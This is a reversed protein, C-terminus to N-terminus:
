PAAPHRLGALCGRYADRRLRPKYGSALARAIEVPRTSRSGVNQAVRERSPISCAEQASAAVGPYEEPGPGDRGSQPSQTSRLESGTTDRSDGGGCATVGSLCGLVLM